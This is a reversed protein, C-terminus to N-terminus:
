RGTLANLTGIPIWFACGRSDATCAHYSRGSFALGGRLCQGRPPRTQAQGRQKGSQLSLIRKLRQSTQAIGARDTRRRPNGDGGMRGTRSSRRRRRHHWGDSHRHREIPDFEGVPNRDLDNREPQLCVWQDHYRHIHEDRLGSQLRVLRDHPRQRRFRVPLGAATLVFDNYGVTLGANSTLSESELLTATSTSPDWSWLKAAFTGSKKLGLKFGTLDASYGNAVTFRISKNVGLSSTVSPNLTATGGATNDLLSVSQAFASSGLGSLLLALLRHIASYHMTKM